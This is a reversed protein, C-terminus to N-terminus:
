RGRGRNAGGGGRKKGRKCEQLVKDVDAIGHELQAAAFPRKPVFGIAKEVVDQARRFVIM